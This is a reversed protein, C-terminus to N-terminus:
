SVHWFTATTASLGTFWQRFVFYHWQIWYKFENVLYYYRAFYNYIRSTNIVISNCTDALWLRLWQKVIYHCMYLLHLSSTIRNGGEVIAPPRWMTSRQICFIKNLEIKLTLISVLYSWQRVNDNLVLTCYKYCVGSVCDLISIYVVIRVAAFILLLM